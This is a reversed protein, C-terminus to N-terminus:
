DIIERVRVAKASQYGAEWPNYSSEPDKHLICGDSGLFITWERPEPKIRYEVNSFFTVNDGADRWNKTGDLFQVQKGDIFAEIVPLLEKAQERTM